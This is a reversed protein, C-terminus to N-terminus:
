AVASDLAMQMGPEPQTPRGDGNTTRRRQWVKTKRPQTSFQKLPSEQAQEEEADQFDQMDEEIEEDSVAKADETVRKLVEDYQM